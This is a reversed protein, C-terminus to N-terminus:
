LGFLSGTPLYVKLLVGFVVFWIGAQIVGGLVAMRWSAGFVRGVGTVLVLMAVTFGAPELLLAAAAVLAPLALSLALLRGQPWPESTGPKLFHLLSLLALVGALALPFVRPGLPDSSFAYEIQSAGIGYLVAFAFLVLATIRGALAGSGAGTAHSM